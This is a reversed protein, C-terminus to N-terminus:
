LFPVQMIADLDLTAGVVQTLCNGDGSIVVLDNDNSGNGEGLTIELVKGFLEELLVLDTIPQTHNSTILLGKFQTVEVNGVIFIIGFVLLLRKTEDVIWKDDGNEKYM